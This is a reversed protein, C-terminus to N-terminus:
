QELTPMYHKAHDEATMRELNMMRARHLRTFHEMLIGWELDRQQKGSFSNGIKGLMTEIKAITKADVNDDTLKTTLELREEKSPVFSRIATMLETDKLLLKTSYTHDVSAMWTRIITQQSTGFLGQEIKENIAKSYFEKRQEDSIKPDTLSLIQADILENVEASIRLINSPMNMSEAVVLAVRSEYTQRSVGNPLAKTKVWDPVKEGDKNTTFVIKRQKELAADYIGAADKARSQSLMFNRQDLTNMAIRKFEGWNQDSTQWSTYAEDYLERELGMNSNYWARTFDDKSLKVKDREDVTIANARIVQTNQTYRNFADINSIRRERDLKLDKLEEAEADYDERGFIDRLKSFGAHVISNKEPSTADKERARAYATSPNKYEEFSLPGVEDLNFLKWQEDFHPILNNEIDNKIWAEKARLPGIEPSPGEYLDLSDTHAARFRLESEPRFADNGYLNFNNKRKVLDEKQTFARDFKATDLIEQEELDKLTQGTIAQKSADWVGIGGTAVLAALQRKKAEDEQEDKDQLVNTIVEGLRRGLLSSTYALQPGAIAM